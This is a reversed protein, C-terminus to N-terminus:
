LQIKRAHGCVPCRVKVPGDERVRIRLKSECSSCRGKLQRTTAGDVIPGALPFRGSGLYDEREEFPLDDGPARDTEFPLADTAQDSSTERHGLESDPSGNPGVVTFVVPESDDSM